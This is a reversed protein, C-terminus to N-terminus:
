YRLSLQRRWDEFRKVLDLEEIPFPAISYSAFGLNLLRAAAMEREEITKAGVVIVLLERDERKATVITVHGAKQSYGIKLGDVGPYSGLLANWNPLDILRHNSNPELRRYSTAGLQAILPYGTKAEHAIIALDYVTSYHGSSDLGTSTEFFSDHAGIKKLKENILQMFTLNGEGLEGGLSEAMAWTADNASTLIAAAIAEELTLKEGAALGLKTPIQEAASQSIEVTQNLSAIDLAAMVGVLKSLSAPAIRKKLNKSWIIQGSQWDIIAGAEITPLGEIEEGIGVGQPRWDSGSKIKNLAGVLAIKKGLLISNGGSPNSQVRVLLGGLFVILFVLIIKRKGM